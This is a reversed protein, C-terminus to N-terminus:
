EVDSVTVEAVSDLITTVGANGEIGIPTVWCNVAVPINLSPVVCFTVPVTCHLEDAVVTALTLLLVPVCPTTVLTPLPAAVIVAADPETLPVAESVTLEAVSTEMATLGAFEVM